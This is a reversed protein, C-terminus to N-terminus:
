SKGVARAYMQSICAESLTRAAQDIQHMSLYVHPSFRVRGLREAAHVGNEAMRRVLVGADTGSKECVIIGTPHDPFRDTLVQFGLKRLRQRLHDSLEYIRQRVTEFGIEHLFTLAAQFYVWDGISPTSYTFRDATPKLEDRYPLYKESNVVSDTGIFAPRLTDLKERDIYLGGMGIPGTLWKWASFPMYDIGCQKVDIPQMGVGQTGDVVFLIGRSRCIEGVAALPFPMGTCWHVASLAILRTRNSILPELGALFDGPTNGAPATRLHVGKKGWHRWPYVNSPYENELLIIEDDPKLDLGHSILNMGEATNHILAIEASDCGLLDSLLLKIRNGVTRLDAKKSLVSNRAYDTMFDSVARLVHEGPPTTGCNNLWIRERNVPYATQIKKWDM